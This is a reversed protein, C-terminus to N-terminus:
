HTTMLITVPSTQNLGPKNDQAETYEKHKEDNLLQMLSARRSNSDSWDLNLSAPFM